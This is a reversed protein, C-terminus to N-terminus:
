SLLEEMKEDTMAYFTEGRVEYDEGGIAGAEELTDREFSEVPNSRSYEDKKELEEKIEGAVYQIALENMAEPNEEALYELAEDRGVSQREAQQEDLHNIWDQTPDERVAAALDQEDGESHYTVVDDNNALESIEEVRVQGGNSVYNAQLAAEAAKETIVSDRPTIDEAIQIPSFAEGANARLYNEAATDFYEMDLNDENVAAEPTLNGKAVAEATNIFSGDTHAEDPLMELTDGLDRNTQSKYGEFKVKGPITSQFPTGDFEHDETRSDVDEEERAQSVSDRIESLEDLDKPKLLLGNESQEDESQIESIDVM